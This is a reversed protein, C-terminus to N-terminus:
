LSRVDYRRISRVSRGCRRVSRAYSRVTQESRVPRGSLDCRQASGGYMSGGDRGCRCGVASGCRRVSVGCRRVSAAGISRVDYRRISRVSRGCRRVSRGCREKGVAVVCRAAVCLSRLSLSLAICLSSWVRGRIISIGLWPTEPIGQRKILIINLTLTIPDARPNEHFGDSGTPDANTKYHSGTPAQLFDYSGYHNQLPQMCSVMPDMSSNM